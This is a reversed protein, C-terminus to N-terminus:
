GVVLRDKLKTYRNQIKDNKVAISIAKKSGVVIVKSKGRTVGTYILNRALMIFHQTSLPMIVTNYESGQSKHITCAYALVLEDLESFDYTVLQLAASSGFNVVLVKEETKIEAIRGIDGNFVEKNYNNRTQMVKDNLKFRYPGREVFVTQENLAKQLIDNLVQTGLPGRHMPTLVQCIDLDQGSRSHSLMLDVIKQQIEVPNILSHFEFDAGAGPGPLDPIEGANIKHANIVITSQEAQRFIHMLKVVKVVDSGIIDSLVNGAGVSPLQNVDGVLLLTAKAPVAKLLDHMLRTDVMSTEDVVFLDGELPNDENRQFGEYSFELLRHITQALHGTTETMRNAARGTPACMVVTKKLKAYISSICKILTTKGTGPGGTLVCVKHQCAAAVAEKQNPALSIKAHREFEAISQAIAGEFNTAATATQCLEKLKKAIALESRMMYTDWVPDESPCGGPIREICLHNSKDNTKDLRDLANRVDQADVTLMEAAEVTLPGFPYYAHGERNKESLKYLIGARIRFPSKLDHGMAQAIRDAAKFGVGHIEEALQYPNAKIVAVADAGYKRYIKTAFLPSIGFEQLFALIKISAQQELYADCIKQAKEKGIGPVKRLEEPCEAIIKFTDIGFVGVIREALKPGIGRIRGSGLAAKIGKVTNPPVICCTKVKLQRGFQPHNFWAGTIELQDGIAPTILEGVICIPDKEERVKVDAITFSVTSDKDAQYRINKLEGTITVLSENNTDTDATKDSGEAPKAEKVPAKDKAPGHVLDYGYFRFLHGHREHEIWQGNLRLDLGLAPQAMPGAIKAMTTDVLEILGMIFTRGDTQNASQAISKLKGLITQM